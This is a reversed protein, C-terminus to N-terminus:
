YPLVKGNQLRWKPNFNEDSYIVEYPLGTKEQLKLLALATATRLPFEGGCVLGTGKPLNPHHHKKCLEHYLVGLEKSVDGKNNDNGELQVLMGVAWSNLSNNGQLLHGSVLEKIADSKNKGPFLDCSHHEILPRMTILAKFESEAYVLQAELRLKERELNDVLQKYLAKLDDIQEQTRQELKDKAEKLDKYREDDQMKQQKLFDILERETTM